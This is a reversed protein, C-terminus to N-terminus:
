KKLKIYSKHGYKDLLYVINSGDILAIPKDKAFERSDNGFYSTTVLIGKVAGENIVTGYLDRVASVPVVNNYRKAQIIFKGGRIPDNDFAIADIGGDRSAQTVKVESGNDSFIKEFLERVLYEFDEWDMEALNIGENIESLVEKSDIFRRDNRNIDLIPKVPALQHLQGAFIGKLYLICDKLSVQALNIEEFKNRSVMLSIICSQFNNGTRKDIAEIWGNFVISELKNNKSIDFVEKISRLTIQFIVFEYYKNFEKDKMTVEMMRATKSNYKYETIKPVEDTNPIRYNIIARKTSSEYEVEINKIYGKPYISEELVFKVSDNMEEDSINEKTLIQAKNNEIAQELINEYEKILLLVEKNKPYYEALMMIKNRNKEWSSSNISFISLNAEGYETDCEIFSELNKEPVHIPQNKRFVFTYYIKNDFYTTGRYRCIGDHFSIYYNGEILDEAKM